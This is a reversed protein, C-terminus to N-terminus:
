YCTVISIESDAKNIVSNEASQFSNINPNLIYQNLLKYSAKIM